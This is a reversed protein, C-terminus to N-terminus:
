GDQRGKFIRRIQDASSPADYGVSFYGPKDTPAPPPPPIHEGERSQPSPALPHPDSLYRCLDAYEDFTGCDWYGGPIRVARVDLGARLAPIVGYGVHPMDMELVDWFRPKWAMVGWAETLDTEYPKDVVDLVRGTRADWDVMGLRQRQEERTHFVGLAVDAGSSLVHAVRAFVSPDAIYTDPMGLVAYKGACFSHVKLVAQTMNQNSVVARLSTQMAYADILPHTEKSAIVVRMKIGAQEMAVEIRRLLYGDPTPLLFKPLGYIRTAKGAAPIIGMWEAM